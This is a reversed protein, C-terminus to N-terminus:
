VPSRTVTLGSGITSHIRSWRGSLMQRQPVYGRISSAIRVHRSQDARLLLDLAAELLHPEDDLLIRQLLPGCPRLGDDAPRGHPLVRRLAYAAFRAERGVDLQGPHQM